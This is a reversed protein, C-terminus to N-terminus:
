KSIDATQFCFECNNISSLINNYYVNKLHNLFFLITLIVIVIFAMVRTDRSDVLLKKIVYKYIIYYLINIRISNNIANYTPLSRRHIFYM